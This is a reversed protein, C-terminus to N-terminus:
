STDLGLNKDLHITHAIVAFANENEASSVNRPLKICGDTSSELSTDVNTKWVEVASRSHEFQSNTVSISGQLSTIVGDKGVFRISKRSTINGVHDLMSQHTRDALDQPCSVELNYTKARIM